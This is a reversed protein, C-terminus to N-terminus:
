RCSCSSITASVRHFSALLSGPPRRRHRRRRDRDFRRSPVSCRSRPGCAPVRPVDVPPAHGIITQRLHPKWLASVSPNQPEHPPKRSHVPCRTAAGFAASAGGASCSAPGCGFAPASILARVASADDSAAIGSAAVSAASAAAIRGAAAGSPAGGRGGPVDDPAGGPAGEAAGGAAGGRGAAGGPGGGGMAGGGMAGGGGMADGGM